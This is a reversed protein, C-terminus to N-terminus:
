LNLVDGCQARARLYHDMLVLACYAEVIVPARPLVCPDHRGEAELVTENGGKDVTQQPKKITATPKFAIRFIIPEGNSIGGQVGGSRNTRTRIKGGENYFSDNHESGTLETGAFGSGIEFGKTANISLMVKALDAEIKDFIPEGLGVPVNRCVCGIVGGVSDKEDEIQKILTEMERSAKKDPCRIESAEVDERTVTGLEVTATITKISQVFAVIELNCKESLYKRAIAGAAVNGATMRASSRGGGLHNKHGYKHDYTMDAHSPRYTKEMERYATSDHDRNKIILSIPTGTTKGRFVGSLIKVQDAEDRETTYDSQGPRRRDLEPQIDAESLELLPPCGEIIAGIAEGHSEGWNTVRFLQGLTDGPM